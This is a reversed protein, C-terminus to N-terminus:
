HRDVARQGGWRSTIEDDAQDATYVVALVSSKLEELDCTSAVITHEFFIDNDRDIGYAGFRMRDNERLLYYMLEPVIEIGTVVYSRTTFIAEDERWPLVSVVTYASGMSIGFAPSDQRPSAFAGFLEKMMGALKEYMQKQFENQFEM